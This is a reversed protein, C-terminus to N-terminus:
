SGGRGLRSYLEEYHRISQNLTLGREQLKQRARAALARATAPSLALRAVAAALTTADAPPILVGCGEDLIERIDGVTTAVVARQTWMAELLIKPVSEWLSPIVLIDLACLINALDTRPGAFVPQQTPPLAGALRRLGAEDPGDGVLVFACMPARAAIEPIAHLFYEQGKKRADLRAVVGVVCRDPTLGWERLIEERTRNPALESPDVGDYIVMTKHAPLGQKRVALQRAGEGDAVVGAALRGCLIDLWRYVRSKKWVDWDQVAFVIRRAGALRGLIVTYYAAPFGFAHIVGRRARRLRWFLQWQFPLHYCLLRRLWPQGVSPAKLAHVTVGHRRLENELLQGRYFCLVEVQFQRRDLARALHLINRETGGLALSGTVLLM